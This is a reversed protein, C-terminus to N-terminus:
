APPLPPPPPPVPIPGGTSAGAPAVARAERGADRAAVALAGLGFVTALFWALGGIGPVIAVVRLIAWGAAFALLRSTPPGILRRGIALGAAVYGIWFLLALGLLIGVGLPIGILTVVAIGAAIPLGFFVAFGIGISRGFRRAATASVSDGARPAFLLLLLGLVLSSVSTAFWIAVRSVALYGGFDFDTPLGESTVQGGVTAGEAVDAPDSSIVDGGVSAGSALTVRGNLAVVNEGVTGSVTIDGNFAVVNEVVSGDVTVDGDFIVADQYVEGEAVDLKGTFVVFSPRDALTDTTQAVLQGTPLLVTGAAALVVLLARIPRM